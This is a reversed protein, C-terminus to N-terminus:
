KLIRFGGIFPLEKAKGQAANVIGLILWVLDLIGVALSILSAVLGGIYPIFGLVFGVLGSAFGLVIGTILFVLGQNKHFNVFPSKKDVLIPILILLGLYCLVAMGKNASIDEATYEATTDPTNTLFDMSM